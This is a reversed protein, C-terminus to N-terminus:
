MKARPEAKRKINLNGVLFFPDDIDYFLVFVNLCSFFLFRNFYKINEEASFFLSRKCIIMFFSFISVQRGCDKPLNEASRNPKGGGGGCLARQRLRRPSAATSARALQQPESISPLFPHHHHDGPPVNKNVLFPLQPQPGSQLVAHRM